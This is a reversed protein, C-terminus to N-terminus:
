YWNWEKQYGTCSMRQSNFQFVYIEFPFKRIPSKHVMQGFWSPSTKGQLLYATKTEPITSKQNQEM